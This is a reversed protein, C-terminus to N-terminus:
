CAAICDPKTFIAHKLLAPTLFIGVRKINNQYLYFRFLANHIQKYIIAVTPKFRIWQDATKFREICLSLCVFTETILRKTNGESIFIDDWKRDRITEEKELGDWGCFDVWDVM